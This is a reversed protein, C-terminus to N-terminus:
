VKYKLLNRKEEKTLPRKKGLLKSFSKKVIGMLKSFQNTSKSVQRKLFRQEKQKQKLDKNTAAIKAILKPRKKPKATKPKAPLPPLVRRAPRIPKPPISSVM